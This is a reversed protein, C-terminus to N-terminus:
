SPRSAQRAGVEDLLAGLESLDVPKTLYATVGRKLLRNVSGPSADASLVIVPITATEPDARLREFVEDGGIDPLHLDLLILDPHHLRALDIGLQGTIAIQLEIEARRAVYRELIEVNALNDEVYLVRMPGEGPESSPEPRQSPLAGETVSASTKFRQDVGPAHLIFTTGRGLESQATISGGMAVALAASLTLGIGTGEIESNEAHLREFPLFIRELDESSLGPGTDIVAVEVERGVGARAAITIGGGEKNYKVANSVLNLLIQRLKQHDAMARLEPAEVRQEIALSREAALPAMLSTVEAILPALEIPELSLSLEGSEARSLDLLENILALLHRGAGLIHNTSERDLESLESMELLQAFGLISNLPTRLEHSTRSLFTNKAQNAREASEKAEALALQQAHQETIDESVGLLYQPTGHADFLPIKRTHLTRRRGSRTTVTEHPIDVVRHGALVERDKETFFAAEEPSFLEESSKGLLQERPYGLFHETARNLRIFRLQAADKIFVVGPINEIITDLFTESEHRREESRDQRRLTLAFVVLAGVLAMGLVLAIVGVTDRLHRASAYATGTSIDAHVTWGLGKVPAYGSLVQASGQGLVMTGTHGALAAHVAPNARLSILRDPAKAVGPAAVVTGEQDTVTLTVGNASGFRDVFKQITQLDYAAVLIGLIVGPAQGVSPARILTAAAVVRPNGTAATRYATSIYPRQSAMVGRYWNRFSFDQGIISPTAPIINLLRGTPDALFAVAVGSQGRQLDSLAASVYAENIMSASGTGLATVMDPREAYSEVLVELDQMQQAVLAAAATSAETVRAEVQSRVAQDGLRVSSYALLGLPVMALLAFALAM